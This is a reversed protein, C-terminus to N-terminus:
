PCGSTRTQATADQAAPVGNQGIPVSVKFEKRTANGAADRVRLTIAYVRGNKTGDRESRLKVSRCDAAIVIDNVTNGDADGPANDPEDSTVKEIVVNNINLSTSCGDSVSAVMQRMTVTHYKHNPPWLQIAPKLTLNPGSTNVVNVTRTTMATNAGDTATYTITYAGPVNVNVSGSATVSVAGACNDTATAGPDVFGTTSQVTMPNAGNLTIVPPTNDTVTVTQTATQPNGAADAATYIITTTGVPFFNGPSVNMRTVALNGSCNDTATATGLTTDSVVVGCGTAGAGTPVNLSAPANIVPRTNDVVTVVATCSSSAGHSDTVTLRVTNAGLGFPGTSDLALSITDGADPDSSGDDVQAATITTQCSSNASVTVNKCRATPATNPAQLEFAGIDVTGGVIRPFGPGRQDTTLPNNSADLALANDGANLAPSNTVLKHTQTPGGNFALTPDLVNNVAVGVINGNNGNLIGGASGADGILNHSASAPGGAMESPTAGAFNGAVITNNVTTDGPLFFIGGGGGNARNGTITSNGVTMTSAGNFIGAGRSSAINNSVTSNSVILTLSNNIGGGDQGSNNSVTSNSVILTGANYIGGGFTASNNSVASNSVTLTGLNLIGGGNLPVRGGMITLGDLTVTSGFDIEFVRFNTSSGSVALLNAGPGQITLNKNILLKGLTLAITCPCGSLNFNITDGSAADAIAKRLSGDGGDATNTVTLPAVVPSVAPTTRAKVNRGANWLALGLLMGLTIITTIIRRKM